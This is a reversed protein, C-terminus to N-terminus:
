IAVAEEDTVVVFGLARAELVSIEACGIVTRASCGTVKAFYLPNVVIRQRPALLTVYMLSDFRTYRIQFPM